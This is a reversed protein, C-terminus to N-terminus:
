RGAVGASVLAQHLLRALARPGEGALHVDDAAFWEPHGAAYANWDVVTVGSRSAAAAEIAANMTTNGSHAPSEHLTVWLVRVVGAAGLEDLARAMNAAYGSSVDNDGVDVIVTPGLRHGLAAILELATPPAIGGEPGTGGLIRGQEPELFLDVGQALAEVAGPDFSIAAAVSDSILTVRPPRVIAGGSGVAPSAALAAVMAAVMATFRAARVGPHDCFM